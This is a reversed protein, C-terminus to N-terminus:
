RPCSANRPREGKEDGHCAHFTTQAYTQGCHLLLVPGIRLQWSRNAAQKQLFHDCVVGFGDLRGHFLADHRPVLKQARM